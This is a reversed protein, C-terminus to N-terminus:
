ETAGQKRFRGQQQKYREQDSKTEDTPLEPMLLCLGLGEVCFCLASCPMTFWYCPFSWSDSIWLCYLQSTWMGKKPVAEVTEIRKLDKGYIDSDNKNFICNTPNVWFNSYYINRCFTWYKIVYYTSCWNQASLIIQNRATKWMGNAKRKCQFVIKGKGQRALHDDKGTQSLPRREKVGNGTLM